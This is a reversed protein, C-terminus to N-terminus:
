GRGCTKLNYYFKIFKIFYFKKAQNKKKELFILLNEQIM